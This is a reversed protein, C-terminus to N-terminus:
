NSKQNGIRIVMNGPKHQNKYMISHALGTEEFNFIESIVPRIKKQDMLSNFEMCQELNAYHSGQIRKQFMWLHRLDFSGLYGSTAGCTVVLGGKKCIQLSTPLTMEGPHELVISPFIGNAIELFKKEFKRYEARRNKENINAQNLSGWHSFDDRIIGAKAGLSLCFELKEKSNVVVIPVGGLLNVVQIAYVGLGGSGGWILVVEKEKLHNPKWNTLMRFVTAGSLMYVSSEEWSLNKSKKLCQHSKVKTYEAFSGFNTEYGWAQCTDSLIPDGGNLVWPDSESWFGAHIVVEDGLMVNDALKGKKVVIGSADSGGIHFNDSSGKQKRYAIVDIPKGLAAWVNNYNLGACIVKVLVEDEEIEPVNIEEMQFAKIPDGLRNQRIVQALMKKPVEFNSQKSEQNLM